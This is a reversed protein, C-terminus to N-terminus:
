QKPVYLVGDVLYSPHAEQRNIAPVYNQEIAARVLPDWRESDYSDENPLTDDTQIVSFRHQQIQAILQNRDLKNFHMLRTANFPDYLYPKGAFNCELLSECLAPGPHSSLFAVDQAFRRHAAAVDRLAAVPNWNGSLLLPIILWLFLALATSNAFPRRTWEWRANAVEDLFLGILISMAFLSSFLVNDAVGAGGSFYGGLVLATLLLLSAIRRKADKRLFWAMYIAVCYPFLMPGIMNLLQNFLHSVDYTRPTFMQGTFHPGGYHINVIVAVATFGIGCVTFWLAYPIAIFLLDLLVAIPVDIPNHKICGAVVFLLASAALHPLSKRRLLYILLGLLYFVHAFMQPDDMGVYQPVQACFVALCLLGALNAARWSGALTRVIVTILLCCLLLSLISVIRATFLYDHTFRHLQALLWFSAMPYNVSTWGYDAPYLPQHNAVTTANYINWGENYDVEVRFFSRAVPVIATFLAIAAAVAVIHKNLPQLVRTAFSM